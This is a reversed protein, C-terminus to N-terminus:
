DWLEMSVQYLGESWEGESDLLADLAGSSLTGQRPASAAPAAAAPQQYHGAAIAGALVCNRM